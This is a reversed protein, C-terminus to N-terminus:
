LLYIKRRRSTEVLLHFRKQVQSVQCAAKSEVECVIGLVERVEGRLEGVASCLQPPIYTEWEGKKKM